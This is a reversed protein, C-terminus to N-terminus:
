KNSDFSRRDIKQQKLKEKFADLMSEKLKKTIDETKNHGKDDGTQNIVVPGDKLDPDVEPPTINQIKSIIDEPMEEFEIDKTVINDTAQTVQALNGTTIEIKTTKVIVRQVGDLPTTRCEQILQLLEKTEEISLQEIDYGPIKSSETKEEIIVAQNDNFEIVMSKDHLGLLEEKSKLAKLANQLRNSIVHWDKKPDLPVGWMDEFQICKNFIDEYRDMHLAFTYERDKHLQQEFYKYAYKLLKLFRTEGLDPEQILMLAFIENSRVGEKLKQYIFKIKDQYYVTDIQHVSHTGQGKKRQFRNTLSTNQIKHVKGNSSTGEILTM